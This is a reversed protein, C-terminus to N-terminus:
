IHNIMSTSCDNNKGAPSRVVVPCLEQVVAELAATALTDTLIHKYIDTRREILIAHTELHWNLFTQKQAHKYYEIAKSTADLLSM